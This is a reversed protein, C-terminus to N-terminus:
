RQGAVAEIIALMRGALVKRDFSPAAAISAAAYRACTQRDDALRLLAGALAQADEPAFTEGAQAENLIAAAEGRVGMLMPIGMAMAEFMKSPIVTEFLESARLHILSVDLLSWYRVVEDKPVSTEFRLNTLGRRAADEVLAAKRAGDGLLLIVIDKGGPSRALIEAADLLTELSHAMGHTGIYGAVFTGQLGLAAELAADKARPTYRSLDVGNTVVDIKARDIERAVLNERFAQTVAIVRTSKRYLFLELRELARIVKGSELAGVTKISEPWIDRLEFIWPRRKLAGTLWAAVATFFQPSTGIVVDVRRVFLAAVSAALMYSVYDLVRKTFGDNATIYSWVRVVRIGAMDETQWLRNRYGDLLKGGPFNPACTIVTVAHGAAVWERCHEFTRSAPANVEPPFNDALFLIHM